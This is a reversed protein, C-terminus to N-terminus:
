TKELFKYIITDHKATERFAKAALYKKTKYTVDGNKKLEELVKQYNKPDVIVTVNEFNKAAARIMNPGGIDINGLTTKLDAGQKIVEGIPYLNCIVLDIPEIQFKEIEKIQEKDDRQALIGGILKPHETKIRGELIEPFNTVESIHKVFELGEDKLKKLTGKTSIIKFGMKNLEKALDVIGTKDYVSIIASKM